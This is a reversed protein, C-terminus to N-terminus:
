VGGLLCALEGAEMEISAASPRPEPWRFRGRELRKSFLCYGGREWFLIKLITRAQNSFAFLYGSFPDLGLVTETAASLGDFSKRMDVSGTAVYIRVSPPLTLM